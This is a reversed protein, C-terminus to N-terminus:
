KSIMQADWKGDVTCKLLLYDIYGLKHMSNNWCFADVYVKISQKVPDEIIIKKLIIGLGDFQVDPLNKSVTEWIAKRMMDSSPKVLLGKNLGNISFTKSLAEQTLIKVIEPHYIKDAWKFNGEDSVFLPTREEGFNPDAGKKLLYKVMEIDGYYSAWILPTNGQYQIDCSLGSNILEKVQTWNKNESSIVILSDKNSNIPTDSKIMESQAFCLKTLFLLVFTFKLDKM